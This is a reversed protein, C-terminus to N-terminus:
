RRNLGSRTAMCSAVAWIAINCNMEEPLYNPYESPSNPFSTPWNSFGTKSCVKLTISPFTPTGVKRTQFIFTYPISTNVSTLISTCTITLNIKKYGNYRNNIHNFKCTKGFHSHRRSDMTVMQNFSLNTSNLIQGTSLVKIFLYSIM